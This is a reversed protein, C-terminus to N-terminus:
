ACEIAPPINRYQGQPNYKTIKDPGIRQSLREITMLYNTAIVRAPTQGVLGSELQDGKTRKQYQKLQRNAIKALLRFRGELSLSSSLFPFVIGMSFALMCSDAPETHNFFPRPNLPFSSVFPRRDALPVGPEQQEQLLMMSIAVLAFLGAGISVKAEKCLKILRASATPSLQLQCHFTNLRPLRSYDLLKSYKPPFARTQIPESRRLPNPFGEPVPKAVHRLVRAIAWFWRQRALNGPVPLYLEEQADPLHKQTSEPLLLNRLSARLEENTM